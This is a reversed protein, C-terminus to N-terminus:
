PVRIRKITGALGTDVVYLAGPVSALAYPDGFQPGFFGLRRGGPDYRVIRRAEHDVAFVTGDPAIALAMPAALRAFVAIGHRTIRLIRGNGTDSVLISGDREVAIGHPGSLKTAAALREPKGGGPSLRYLRTQTTFVLDGNASSAVPGIDDEVTALVEPKGGAGLRDLSHGDTVYIRGPAPELVAYPKTLLALQHIRGKADVRLLRHLGNEVVLLSGGREVAISTPWEFVHPATTATITALVALALRM